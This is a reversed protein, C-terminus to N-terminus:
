YSFSRAVGQRYGVPEILPGQRVEAQPAAPAREDDSDSIDCDIWTASENMVEALCLYRANPVGDPLGGGEGGGGGGPQSEPQAAGGEQEEGGAGDPPGVKLTKEGDDSTDSVDSLWSASENLRRM